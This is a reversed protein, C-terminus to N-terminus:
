AVTRNVRPTVVWTEMVEQQGLENRLTAEQYRGTLDNRVEASWPPSDITKVTGMAAWLDEGEQSMTQFDINQFTSGLYLVEGQHELYRIRQAGPLPQQRGYRNRQGRARRMPVACYITEPHDMIKRKLTSTWIVVDTDELTQVQIAERLHSQMDRLMSMKRRRSMGRNNVTHPYAATFESPMIVRPPRRRSSQQGGETGEELTEDMNDDPTATEQSNVGYDGRNKLNGEEDREDGSHHLTEEIWELDDEETETNDVNSHNQANETNDLHEMEQSEAHEGQPEEHLEISGHTIDEAAKQPEEHLKLLYRPVEQPQDEQPNQQHYMRVLDTMQNQLSKLKEELDSNTNRLKKAEEEFKHIKANDEDAIEIAETTLNGTDVLAKFKQSGLETRIDNRSLHLHTQEQNAMDDTTDESRTSDQSLKVKSNHALCAAELHKTAAPVHFEALNYEENVMEENDEETIIEEAIIEETITRQVDENDATSAETILEKVKVSDEETIAGQVDENDTTSATLTDEKARPPEKRRSEM